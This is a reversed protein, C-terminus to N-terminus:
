KFLLFCSLSLYPITNGAVEMAKSSKGATVLVIGTFLGIETDNLNLMNFSASVDFMSTVFDPQFYM